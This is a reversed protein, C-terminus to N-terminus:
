SRLRMELRGAWGSSAAGCCVDDAGPQLCKVEGARMMQQPRDECADAGNEHQVMDPGVAVGLKLGVCRSIAGSNRARHQRM